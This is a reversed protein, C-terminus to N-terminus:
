RKVVLCFKRRQDGRGFLRSQQRGIQVTVFVRDTLEQNTLKVSRDDTLTTIPEDNPTGADGAIKALITPRATLLHFTKLPGLRGM